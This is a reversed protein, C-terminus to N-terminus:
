HPVWGEEAERLSSHDPSERAALRPCPPAHESLHLEKTFHNEYKGRLLMESLNIISTMMKKNDTREALTVMVIALLTFSLLIEPTM